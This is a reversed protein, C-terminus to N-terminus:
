PRSHPSPPCSQPDPRPPLVTLISNQSPYDEIPGHMCQQLFSLGMQIEFAFSGPSQAVPVHPMHVDLPSRQAKLM